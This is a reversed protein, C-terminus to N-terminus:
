LGSVLRKMRTKFVPCVKINNSLSRITIQSFGASFTRALDNSDNLAM